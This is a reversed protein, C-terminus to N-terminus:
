DPKCEPGTPNLAPQRMFTAMRASACPEIGVVGHGLNYREVKANGFNDLRQQLDILPTVVDLNGQLFLTPIDTILPQNLEVPAPKAGILQCHQTDPWQLQLSAMDRIHGEPLLLMTLQLQQAPWFPVEEACFHSMMSIDAFSPDTLLWIYMAVFPTVADGNDQELELVIQELSAYIDASYLGDMIASILLNGDLLVESVGNIDYDSLDLIVPSKNLKEILHTLRHTFEPLPKDCDAVHQCYRELMQYPALYYDADNRNLKADIFAASDFIMAEVTHPYYRALLQAYVAGYSVGYLSWKEIGLARRLLEIDQVVSLSNYASLVIGEAQLQVICQQYEQKSQEFSQQLTLHQSFRKTQNIRYLECNLSPSSLGTGRPDILILNRGQLLSASYFSKWTLEVMEDDDLWMAAGPGGGGLHLLPPATNETADTFFIVVPISIQNSNATDHQEPLTFRYCQSRPWDAASTFWCDVAQLPQPASNFHNSFYWGIFALLIVVWSLLWVKSRQKSGDM